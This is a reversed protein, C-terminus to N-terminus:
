HKNPSNMLISNPKIIFFSIVTDYCTNTNTIQVLYYGKHLLFPRYITLHLAMMSDIKHSLFESKLSFIYGGCKWIMPMSYMHLIMASLQWHIKQAHQYKTRHMQTSILFAWFYVCLYMFPSLFLLLSYLTWLSITPCSKNIIDKWNVDDNDLTNVLNQPLAPLM